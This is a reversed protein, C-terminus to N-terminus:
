SETGGDGDATPRRQSEELHRNLKELLRNRAGDSDGVPGKGAAEVDGTLGSMSLVMNVFPLNAKKAERRIVGLVDPIDEKVLERALRNVADLLGPLRKWRYLTREDVQIDALAAFQALTKPKRESKPLALWEIFKLQADTWKESTESM